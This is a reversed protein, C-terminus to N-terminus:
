AHQDGKMILNFMAWIQNPSSDRIGSWDHDQPPILGIPGYGDSLSWIAPSTWDALDHIAMLPLWGSMWCNLAPDFAMIDLDYDCPSRRIVQIQALNLMSILREEQATPM